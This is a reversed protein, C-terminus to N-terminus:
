KAPLKRLLYRRMNKFIAEIKEDPTEPDIQLNITLHLNPNPQISAVKTQNKEASAPEEECNLLEQFDAAESMARFTELMQQAQRDSARSNKKLLEFIEEDSELYPCSTFQFLAAYTAKIVRALAEGSGRASALSRGTETLVDSPDILGLELFVERINKAAGPPIGLGKLYERDLRDQAPPKTPLDRLLRTLGEPRAVIPFQMLTRGKNM